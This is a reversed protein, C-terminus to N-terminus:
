KARNPVEGEARAYETSHPKGEFVITTDKLAIVSLQLM